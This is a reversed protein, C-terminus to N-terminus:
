RRRIVRQMYVVTEHVEYGKPLKVPKQQRSFLMDKIGAVGPILGKRVGSTRLRALMSRRFLEIGVGLALAGVGAAVRRPVPSNYLIAPLNTQSAVISRSPSELEVGCQRCYLAGEQHETRCNPCRM